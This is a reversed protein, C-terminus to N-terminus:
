ATPEACRHVLIVVLLSGFLLSAALIHIVQLGPPLALYALGAGVGFQILACLLPLTAFRALPSGPGVASRAVVALALCCGVVVLGGTRHVEDLWGVQGLLLGRELNPMANCILDINGRVLAGLLIQVVCAISALYALLGLRKPM